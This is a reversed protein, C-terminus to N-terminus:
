AYHNTRASDSVEDNEANYEGWGALVQERRATANPTGGPQFPTSGNTTMSTRTM